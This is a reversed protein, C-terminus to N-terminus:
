REQERAGKHHPAALRTVARCARVSLGRGRCRGRGGTVCCPRLAVRPAAGLATSLAAGSLGLAAGREQGSHPEAISMVAVGVSPPEVMPSHIVRAFRDVDLSAPLM